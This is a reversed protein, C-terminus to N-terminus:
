WAARLLAVIDADQVQRPNNKLSWDNMAHAALSEFREPKVGTDRLTSPTGLTRLLAEVAAIASEAASQQVAPVWFRLPAVIREYRHPVVQANFRMAHPLLIANIIGNAVDSEPGLSHSVATVVGGGTLDTGQGCLISAHVLRQRLDFSGPDRQLHPLHTAVMEVTHRLLAESLDNDHDAELGSIAMALTNLSASLFLDDPATALLAPEIIICTARTKPDFLALRDGTQEDHVASGTKPTATTPTTPLVFIPIKNKLLRPSVLRGSEDRHTALERPLGGEALVISAARATVIASGGGLALVADAGHDRLWDAAQVVSQSPSHAQVKDFVGVYAEGLAQQVLGLATPHAALSRGCLVAVRSAGVRRVEAQLQQLSGEGAYIRHSAFVSASSKM